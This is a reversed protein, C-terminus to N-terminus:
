FFLEWVMRLFFVSLVVIMVPKVAKVGDHAFYNSGLFNGAINFLGAPFGLLFIVNGNMAYLILSTINTTWNIVKTVGNARHIEMHALSSLLLILFTGPGLGYFGDYVGVAFAVCMAIVVTKKVGFVEREKELVKGKLVAFAIVPLICLMIVKFPGDSIRLAIRVGAAAGAFAAAVYFGAEKWPIYGLKAYRYTSISTGMCSSLKNTGIMTHVPLGAFLYAPISILGGGGAVADIFGALFVLPCVIIFHLATLEMTKVGHAASM